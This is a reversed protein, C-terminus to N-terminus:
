TCTVTNQVIDKTEMPTLVPNCNQMSYAKIIQKAYHAQSVQITRKTREREILLGTFISINGMDKIKFKTALFTKVEKVEDDTGVVLCDDVHALSYCGGSQNDPMLHTPMPHAHNDPIPHAKYWLAGDYTIRKFGFLL